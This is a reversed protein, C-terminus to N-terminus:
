WAKGESGFLSIHKYVMDKIASTVYADLKLPESVDPNENLFSRISTLYAIKVATSINIKSGGLQILKRFTDDSLGTGGHIVLPSSSIKRIDQLRDFDIIPDGKYLGHATGIAPAFADVGTEKTYKESSDVDALRGDDDSVVIDEEVGTIAGLEGEVCVGKAAGYAKIEQTIRINEDLSKKSADIMISPFGADICAKAFDVDTCHDLHLTAPIPASELMPIITRVTEELGMQKVTKVSMQIIVPSKKEICADMVARATLHNVINFAGIAYKEQTARSLMEKLSVISM